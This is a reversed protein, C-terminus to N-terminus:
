TLNNSLLNFSTLAEEYATKKWPTIQDLVEQPDLWKLESFEDDTASELNPAGAEDKLQCVFWYLSQGCYKKAIKAKLREPFLYSTPADRSNLIDFDFEGLEERIERRLAQQLSEGQDIGGQPFQWVDIDRRKGVLVQGNSHIFIAVIARRYPRNSTNENM